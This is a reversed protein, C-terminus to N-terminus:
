TLVCSPHLFARDQIELLLPTPTTEVAERANFHLFFFQYCFYPETWPWDLSTIYLQNKQDLIQVFQVSTWELRYHLTVKGLGGAEEAREWLRGSRKQAKRVGEQDEVQKRLDEPGEAQRGSVEVAEWGSGSDVLFLNRRPKV